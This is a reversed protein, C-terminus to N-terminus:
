RHHSAPLENCAQAVFWSLAARMAREAREDLGWESLAAPRLAAVLDWQPLATLDVNTLSRYGLTFDRMADAGFAWLLELRANGLDALPDGRAADEWDVVAVLRGDRWITNGPWFDGHLLVSRNQDPPPWHARLAERVRAEDPSVEPGAAPAQLALASREEQEPLFSVGADAGDVRHINALTAALQRLADDRDAPLANSRGEVFELVVYPTPFVDGSRDVLHPAPVPLGRARLFRLLNFEDAAINANGALDRAGHQRVIMTRVAGDPHEVELATVRASVGGTVEWTRLLKSRPDIKRVVRAFPEDDNAQAM